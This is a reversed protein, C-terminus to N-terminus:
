SRMYEDEWEDLEKEKLPKEKKRPPERFEKRLMFGAALGAILGSLHALNATNGPYFLGAFDLMAWMIVAAFMPMPIGFAYVAMKPRLFALSGIIGFIAGSAGLTATYLFTSSVSAVLGAGLFIGIFKRSGLLGEVALGFFILAFVNSLLHSASGHLFISTLLTWPRDLVEKSVLVFSDTFGNIMVQVLFAIAILILLYVIAYIKMSVGSIVDM